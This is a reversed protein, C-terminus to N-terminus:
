HIGIGEAIRDAEARTYNGTIMASDAIPARLTPAIVVKGDILIAVRRGVHNATAQRIRDAGAPLFQVNIAFGGRGDATVWTSAVDDNSVVIEPHLYILRPPEPLQAVVLGPLPEDEALRAEFRVAAILPTARMWLEFGAAALVLTAAAFAALMGLRARASTTAKAATTTRLIALRIREREADDLRPAERRLPDADQLLSSLSKM